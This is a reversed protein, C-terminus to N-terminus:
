IARAGARPDAALAAEVDAPLPRGRDVYRERLEPLSLPARKERSM